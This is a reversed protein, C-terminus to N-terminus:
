HTHENARAEDLTCKLESAWFDFAALADSWTDTVGDLRKGGARRDVVAALLRDDAGDQFKAEIGASGVFAQADTALETLGSIPRIPLLTSITDLAVDSGKAETLLVQIRLVDPEPKSVIPYDAKMTNVLAAYLHDALTQLDEEPIAHLDTGVGYWVRVPDIM